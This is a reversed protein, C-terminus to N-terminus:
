QYAGLQKIVFLTFTWSFEFITPLYGLFLFIVIMLIILYMGFCTTTDEDDSEFM